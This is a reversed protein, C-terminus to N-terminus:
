DCNTLTLHLWFLLVAPQIAAKSHTQKAASRKEPCNQTTIRQKYDATDTPWMVGEKCTKTTQQSLGWKHVTPKQASMLQTNLRFLSILPPTAAACSFGIFQFKNYLEIFGLSASLHRVEKMSNVNNECQWKNIISQSSYRGYSTYTLVVCLVVQMCVKFEGCANRKNGVAAETGTFGLTHTHTQRPGRNVEYRHYPISSLLELSMVEVCATGKM